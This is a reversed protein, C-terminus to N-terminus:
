AATEAVESENEAVEPEPKPASKPKAKIKKEKISKPPREGMARFEEWTVVSLAKFKCGAVCAQIEKDYCLDCKLATMRKIATIPNTVEHVEIAGFPCAMECTGCGSCDEEQVRVIGNDVIIVGIPCAKACPTDECHMCQMAANFKEGDEKIKIVRNRSVLKIGLGKAEKKNIGYHGTSCKVMCMGCGVCLGSDCLVFRNVTIEEM